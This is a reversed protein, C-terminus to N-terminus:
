GRQCAPCFYTSRADAQRIMEIPTACALCREGRREYVWLEGGRGLMSQSTVRTVRGPLVFRGGRGRAVTRTIVERAVDLVGRLAAAEIAGVKTRPDLKALFLIESKLVNGIGAVAHQDLLADAIPRDPDASLRRLAEEADFADSLLDPGLARLRPDADVRDTRLLRVIPAGFCVAETTETSLALRLRFSPMRWREGRAYLHWAGHMMLHSHLTLGNSFGILLNKGRSGVDVVTSGLLHGERIEAVASKVEVITEGALARRLRDALRYITDGEPM